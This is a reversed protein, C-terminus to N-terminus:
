VFYVCRLGNRKWLAYKLFCIGYGHYQIHGFAAIGHYKKPTLLLAFHLVWIRASWLLLDLKLRGCICGCGDWDPIAIWLGKLNAAKIPTQPTQPLQTWLSLFHSCNVSQAIIAARHRHTQPDELQLFLTPISLPLQSKTKVHNTLCSTIHQSPNLWYDLLPQDPRPHVATSQLALHPLATRQGTIVESCVLGSM